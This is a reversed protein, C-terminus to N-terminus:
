ETQDIFRNSRNLLPGGPEGSQAQISELQERLIQSKTELIEAETLQFKKLILQKTAEMDGASDVVKQLQNQYGTLAEELRKLKAQSNTIQSM